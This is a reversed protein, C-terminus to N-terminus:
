ASGNREVTSLKARFGRSALGPEKFQRCTFAKKKMRGVCRRSSQAGVMLKQGQSVVSVLSTGLAHCTQIKLAAIGVILAAGQGPFTQKDTRGSAYLLAVRNDFGTARSVTGPHNNLRGYSAKM